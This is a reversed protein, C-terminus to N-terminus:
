NKGVTLDLALIRCMTSCLPISGRAGPRIRVDTTTQPHCIPALIALPRLGLATALSWNRFTASEIDSAREHSRLPTPGFLAPSRGGAEQAETIDGSLASFLVAM